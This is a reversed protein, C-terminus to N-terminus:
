GRLLEDAALVQAAVEHLKLGRDMAHRRLRDYAASEDIGASKMLLGKAREIQKRQALEAQASGLQARLATDQEYRAIAVKLVGALREPRLGAVVYASVGARLAARMPDDADDEAFVVVPRPHRSSLAALQELTDRTPSESDVIVVDPALRLVCDHVLTASDLVGVVDCGQRSLADRLLTTHHAGDDILLVRLGLAPPVAEDHLMMSRQLL